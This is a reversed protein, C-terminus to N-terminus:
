GGVEVEWLIVDCSLLLDDILESAVWSNAILFSSAGVERLVKVLARCNDCRYWTSAWFAEYRKM